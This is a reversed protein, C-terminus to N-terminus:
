FQTLKAEVLDDPEEFVVFGRWGNEWKIVTGFDLKNNRCASHWWTNYELLM